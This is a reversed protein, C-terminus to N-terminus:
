ASFDVAVQQGQRACYFCAGKVREQADMWMQHSIRALRAGAQIERLNKVGAPSTVGEWVTVDEKQLDAFSYESPETKLLYDTSM